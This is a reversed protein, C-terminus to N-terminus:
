RGANRHFLDAVNGTRVRAVARELIRRGLEAEVDNQLISVFYSKIRRNEFKKRMSLEPEAEVVVFLAFVEQVADVPARLGLLADVLVVLRLQVLVRGAVPVRHVLIRGALLLLLIVDRALPFLAFLFLRTAHVSLWM